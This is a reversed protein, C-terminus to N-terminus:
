EGVAVASGDLVRLAHIATQRGDTSLSELVRDVLNDLDIEPCDHPPPQGGVWYPDSRDPLDGLREVLKRYNAPTPQHIGREWWYVSMECVDIDAALKTRSLEREERVRRIAHALSETTEIQAAM